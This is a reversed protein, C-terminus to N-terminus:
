DFLGLASVIVRDTWVRKTFLRTEFYPITELMYEVDDIRGRAQWDAKWSRVAPYGANHEMIAFIERGDNRKLLEQAFWRAGLQISAEPDRLYAERSQYPSATLINWRQDLAAFTTPMFQFLGLAQRPSLADPNFLSENRMVAYLLQPAVPHLTAAKRLAERYVPPYATALYRPNCQAAARLLPSEHSATVLRMAAAWDGGRQEMFGALQLRNDPTPLAEKAAFLDERYASLLVMADLYGSRDLQALSWQELRTDPFEQGLRHAMNLLYHYLGSKVAAALRQHYPGRATIQGVAPNKQFTQLWSARIKRTPETRARARAGSELHMAARIAYYHYPSDAVVRRFSTRAKGPNGQQEAIRGIWFRATLHLPGHPRKAELMELLDSAAKLNRKGGKGYLLLAPKFHALNFWDNEGKFERLRQYTALAQEIEGTDEYDIALRYLADDALRGQPYRDVLELLDRRFQKPDFWPGKRRHLFARRYLAKEAPDPDKSTQQARTLLDSVTQYETLSRSSRAKVAAWELLAQPGVRTDGSNAAERLLLIAPDIRGNRGYCTGMIWQWHAKSLRGSALAADLVKQEVANLPNICADPLRELLYGQARETVGARWALVIGSRVIDARMQPLSGLISPRLMGSVLRSEELQQIEQLVAAFDARDVSDMGAATTLYRWIAAAVVGSGGRGDGYPDAAAWHILRRYLDLAQAARGQRFQKEATLFIWVPWGPDSAGPVPNLLSQEACPLTGQYGPLVLISAPGVLAPRPESAASEARVAIGSGIWCGVTLGVWLLLLRKM